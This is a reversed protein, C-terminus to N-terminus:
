IKIWSLAERINIAETIHPTVSGRICRAKAEMLDGYQNRSMMSYSYLNSSNFVAADVNVKLKNDESKRWHDAGDVPNIFCMTMDFSKDQANHCQKFSLKSSEVVERVEM